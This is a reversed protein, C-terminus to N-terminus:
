AVGRDTLTRARIRNYAIVLARRRYIPRARPLDKATVTACLEGLAVAVAEAHDPSELSWVELEPLSLTPPQPQEEERAHLSAGTHTTFVSNPKPQTREAYASRAVGLALSPQATDEKPSKQSTKRALTAARAGKARAEYRKLGEEWWTLLWACRLYGPHEHCPRFHQRIALKVRAFTEQGKLLEALARENDPLTCPPADRTPAAWAAGCAELLAGREELTYYPTLKRWEDWNLPMYYLESGPKRRGM